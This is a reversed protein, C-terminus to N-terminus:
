PNLRWLAFNLLSAFGVWAALPVLCWAALRDLRHFAVITALVVILQPGINILGLGVSRAGFFMWSWAANMALQLVFLGLALGRGTTQRPLLLIRWVSYAMLAYLATWVPGFVWNPPNFAPKALGAYWPSLNPFTALQGSISVAAVLVVAVVAFGLKRM